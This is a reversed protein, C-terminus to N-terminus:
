PKKRRERAETKQRHTEHAEDVDLRDIVRQLREVESPSIPGDKSKLAIRKGGLVVTPAQEEDREPFAESLTEGLFEAIQRLKDPRPQTKAEANIWRRITINSPPDEIGADVMMRILEEPNKVRRRALLATIQRAIRQAPSEIGMVAVTVHM